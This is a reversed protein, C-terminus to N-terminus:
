LSTVFKKMRAPDYTMIGDIGWDILQKARKEKDTSWMLVKLGAEHAAAVLEPTIESNLPHISYAGAHRATEIIQHWDEELYLYGIKIEPDIAHIRNLVEHNFSSIVDDRRTKVAAAVQEELGLIKVEINLPIPLAIIEDLTPICEDTEDIRLARLEELTKDAVSGIGDTMRYLTNDHFVVPVGDKSIQLDVEIMDAGVEIARKFGSMTNEPYEYTGTHAIIQVQNGSLETM